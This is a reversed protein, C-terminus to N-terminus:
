WWLVWHMVYLYMIVIKSEILESESSDLIDYYRKDTRDEAM